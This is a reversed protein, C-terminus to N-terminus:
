PQHITYTLNTNIFDKAFVGTTVPVVTGDKIEQFKATGNTEATAGRNWNLLNGVGWTMTGSGDFHWDALGRQTYRLSADNQLAKTHVVMYLNFEDRVTIEDVGDDVGNVTLKLASVPVGFLSPTDELQFLHGASGGAQLQVFFASGRDYWPNALTDTDIMPASGEKNSIFRVPPAFGQYLGRMSVLRMNQM